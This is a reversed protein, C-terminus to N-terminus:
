TALLEWWVRLMSSYDGSVSMGTPISIKLYLTKSQGPYIDELEVNDQYYINDVTPSDIWTYPRRLTLKLQNYQERPLVCNDTVAKNWELGSNWVPDDAFPIMSGLIRNDYRIFKSGVASPAGDDQDDVREVSREVGGSVRGIFKAYYKSTSNEVCYVWVGESVSVISHITFGELYESSYLRGDLSVRKIYVGDVIWLADSDGLDLRVHTLDNNIDINTISDEISTGASNLKYLNNEDIFWCGGDTTSCLDKLDTVDTDYTVLITGSDDLKLITNPTGIKLIYWISTSDPIVDWGSIFDTSQAGSNYTVSLSSNLHILYYGASTITYGGGGARETSLYLWFGEDSDYKFGYEKLEYYPQTYSATYALTKSAERIGEQTLKIIQIRLYEAGYYGYGDGTSLLCASKLTDVNVAFQSSYHEDCAIDNFYQGTESFSNYVLLGTSVLYEKYYVNTGTRCITRYVNYDWPVTDSSRIQLTSTYDGSDVAVLAGSVATQLVDLYAFRVSDNKFIPTTYTGVVEGGDLRLKGDVNSNTDVYQGNDWLSGDVVIFFNNRAYVWPGSESASISLLDDADDYQPDFMVHATAVTDGSNYVEIEKIYDQYNLYNLSTLVYTSTLTGDSGFDIVEDNNLVEFGVMTGSISTGSVDHNLKIYRPAAPSTITTYYYSSGVSTTLSSYSDANDNKYYFSIGSAVTGSSTSSDFYYRIEDISVRDVLGCDIWVNDNGSGSITVTGSVVLLNSMDEVTLTITGSSTIYSNDLLNFKM